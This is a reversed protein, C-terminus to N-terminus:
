VSGGHRLGGMRPGRVGSLEVELRDHVLLRRRARRDTEVPGADEIREVELHEALDRPGDLVGRPVVLDPDHDDGAGTTGEADPGIEAGPPGVIEALGALVPLPEARELVHVVA